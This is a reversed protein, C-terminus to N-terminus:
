CVSSAVSPKWHWKRKTLEKISQWVPSMPELSLMQIISSCLFVTWIGWNISSELRNKIYHELKYDDMQSCPISIYHHPYQWRQDYHLTQPSPVRDHCCSFKGNWSNGPFSIYIWHFLIDFFWKFIMKLTYLTNSFLSFLLWEKKCWILTM